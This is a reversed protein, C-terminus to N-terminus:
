KKLFLRKLYGKCILLVCIFLNKIYISKLIIKLLLRKISKFHNYNLIDFITTDFLSQHIKHKHSVLKLNTRSIVNFAESILFYSNILFNLNIRQPYSIIINESKLYNYFLIQESHMRLDQPNNIKFIYFPLEFFNIKSMQFEKLFNENVLQGNWIKFFLDKHGFHFWDSINFPYLKYHSNDICMLLKSSDSFNEIFGGKERFYFDSRVKAVYDTKVFKHANSTSTMMRNYNQLYPNLTKIIGPHENILYVDVDFEIKFDNKWTSLIIQSGAYFKRISSITKLTVCEKQDFTIPGQIIFTIQSCLVM